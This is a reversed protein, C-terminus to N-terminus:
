KQLCFYKAKSHNEMLIGFVILTHELQATKSIIAAYIM